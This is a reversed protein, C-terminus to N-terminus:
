TFGFSEAVPLYAKVIVLPTGSVPEEGIVIGRRQTLTQYIGGMADDPAQIECLFVPEQFRPEATLQAAYLVRRATPIIQGGGRHIADAHLAVDMINFKIGRMNEETMVAEKTAWQFAAECSDKIENLYQVAKTQDVLLNPGSTEPGFCWIKKADNADWNFKDILKRYRNKPDEKASLEDADIANTLDDGLPEATMYIRNHKNPSKSLCIQTSLAQVTEKFTVVPDSKKIECKAYENVLDNLCIEVHLEGCGAIIHEGSEETYCLVLPDSKSLKKLGEVLKPLDSAHKPEVAVRVVPSVSYKM